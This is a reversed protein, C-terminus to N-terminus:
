QLGAVFEAYAAADLMDDLIATDDLKLALLWGDTLPASNILEPEDVLRDNVAVVTGGGPLKIEGVAKVSEIVVLNTAADVHQGLEPLEVYVVDGLQEQAYTTIGIRVSGDAEQRLWEHERTYKLNNM